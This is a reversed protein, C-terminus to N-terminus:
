QTVVIKKGEITFHVNNKELINLTESLNLDRQIEGKFVRKPITGRYSIEVDYWRSLQRLVAQLDANSFSFLGNKWGIVEDVDASVIKIESAVQAQQGPKILSTKNGKSVKVSGELLTIKIENEDDYSNVNFHTGLVQVSVDNKEVVFPMSANHAVEFYGEGTIQVKRENGTFATPYTISSAVNLWVNSGDALQLQVPKSGKPVTLTNYRVETADGKYVIQGDVTKVVKVNGQQTLTGNAASDLVITSGDSLTLVAKNSQPAAVDNKNKQTETKAIQKEKKNNFYFYSGISLLLVVVAAAAVRYWNTFIIKAKQEPAHQLISKIAPEWDEVRFHPNKEFSLALPELIDALEDNSYDDAIETLQIVEAASATGSIYKEFLTRINDTTLM